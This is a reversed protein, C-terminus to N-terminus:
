TAAVMREAHEMGIAGTCANANGSNVVIASCFKSAVFARKSVVVPAAITRNQTFVAALAAPKSSRIIALDKKKKRIGCYIGGAEFGQAFTVGEGQVVTIM